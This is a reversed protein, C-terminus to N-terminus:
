RPPAALWAQVWDRVQAPEAPVPGFLVRYIIPAVLGDMLAQAAPAPEGRARAAGADARAPEAHLGRVPLCPSTATPPGALVDRLMAQGIESGMEELYQEAWARLDGALSGTDAPETEARLRDLAVDALLDALEGWRRYITSPTVRCPGRDPARHLAERGQEAMLERTARHVAAQV